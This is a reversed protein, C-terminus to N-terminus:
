LKRPTTRSSDPVDYSHSSHIHSDLALYGRDKLKESEELSVVKNKNELSMMM